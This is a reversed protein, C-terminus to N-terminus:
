FVSSKIVFTNLICNRVLSFHHGNLTRLTIKCSRCKTHFLNSFQNGKNFIDIDFEKLNNVTKDSLNFVGEVYARDKGHRIMSSSARNGLLLGIGDVIISKGAGTEGTLVNFGDDLAFTLDDIIAINKITLQSLM